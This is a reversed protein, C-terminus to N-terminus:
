ANTNNKQNWASLENLPIKGEYIAKGLIAGSLGLAKLRDLDMLSSIGGNAILPITLRSLIEEYLAFSPGQLMGDKSIDTCVVELLGGSAFGSIFDVVELTSEELWGSTRILGDKCDAGLILREPGFEEIWQSFLQPDKVALSGVTVKSAGANFAAELDRRSKIGGGFDIVLDTKTSLQELISYNVIGQSRAGDLDVLHLYNFGQDQFSLAVDLPNDSYIKQKSYDGQSLRVCRGSLIDIAPIIKM